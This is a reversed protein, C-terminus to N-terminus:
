IARTVRNEVLKNRRRRQTDIVDGVDLSTVPTTTGSARHYIVLTGGASTLGQVLDEAADALTDRAATTMRGAAVQDVALSPAYFRGRGARSLTATRLSVVPACQFPLCEGANTGVDTRPDTLGTLQKGTTPNLEVTTAEIAAVDTCLTARYAVSFFATIGSMWAAQAAALSANGSTHVGFSWSEGTYTGILRHRYLAV